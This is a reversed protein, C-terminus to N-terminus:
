VDLRELLYEAFALDDAHTIKINEKGIDSMYVSIGIKEMLMNDDTIAFDSSDVLSIAKLYYDYRFIQPTGALRLEERKETCVSFCDSNIRKVTDVIVSCASAAGYCIADAVVKTIMDPQILCRAIDHVAVYECPFDISCFGNKASEMRSKGGIVIKRLKTIDKAETSAFTEEGERVVLIIDTIQDCKEFAEISRLLISKGKIAVRQKTVDIKMRSGNGAGLLIACVRSQNM